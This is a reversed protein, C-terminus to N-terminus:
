ISLLNGTQKHAVETCNRVASMYIYTHIYTHAFLVDSCIYKNQTVIYIYITTLISSIQALEKKKQESSKIIEM